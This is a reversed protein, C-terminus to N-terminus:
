LTILYLFIYNLWWKFFMVPLCVNCQPQFVPLVYNAILRFGMVVWVLCKVLQLCIETFAGSGPRTVAAALLLCPFNMHNHSPECVFDEPFLVFKNLPLPLERQLINFRCLNLNAQRRFLLVRWCM